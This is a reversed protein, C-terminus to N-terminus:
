GSLQVEAAPLTSGRCAAPGEMQRRLGQRGRPNLPQWMSTAARTILARPHSCDGILDELAPCLADTEESCGKRM